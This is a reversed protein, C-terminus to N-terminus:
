IKSVQVMGNAEDFGAVSFGGHALLSQEADGIMAEHNTKAAKHLWPGVTNDQRIKQPSVVAGAALHM